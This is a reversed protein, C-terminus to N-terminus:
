AADLQSQLYMIRYMLPVVGSKECPIIRWVKKSLSNACDDAGGSEASPGSAEEASEAQLLQYRCPPAAHTSIVSTPM